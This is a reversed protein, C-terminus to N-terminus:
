ESGQYNGQEQIMRVHQSSNGYNGRHSNNNRNNFNNNRFNNRDNHNYNNNNYNNRNFNNNNSNSNNNNRNFNSNFRNFNRNNHTNFNRNNYFNPNRHQHSGYHMVQCRNTQELECGLNIAEVLTKPQSAFITQKLQDNLGNKFINLAYSENMKEIVKKEENSASTGLEQIQLKNLEAIEDLLRDKFTTVALNGQSFNALNSHIQSVTKNSKFKEKLLVSLNLFDTPESCTGIITKVKPSFKIHFVVEILQRKGDTSLSNYLLEVIKLFSDIEKYSGTFNPVIKMTTEMNLDAM